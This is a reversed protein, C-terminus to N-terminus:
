KIQKYINYEGLSYGCLIGFVRQFHFTSSYARNAIETYDLEDTLNDEIYDIANQLGTIWDM